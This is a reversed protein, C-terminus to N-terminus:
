RLAWFVSLSLLDTTCIWLVLALSFVCPHPLAAAALLFFTGGSEFCRLQLQSIVGCSGRIEVHEEGESEYEDMCGQMPTRCVRLVAGVLAWGLM